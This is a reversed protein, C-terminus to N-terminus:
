APILMHPPVPTGNDAVGPRDTPNFRNTAIVRAGDRIRQVVVPADTGLGPFDCATVPRRLLDAFLTAREPPLEDLKDSTMM